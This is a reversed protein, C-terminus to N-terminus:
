RKEREQQHSDIIAQAREMRERFVKDSVLGTHLGFTVIHRKGDHNLQKEWIMPLDGSPGARLIEIEGFRWIRYSIDEETLQELEVDYPVEKEAPCVLTHAPFYDRRVILRLLSKEGSQPLANWFATDQMCQFLHLGLLQVNAHCSNTLAEARQQSDRALGGFILVGIASIILLAAFAYLYRQRLSRSDVGLIPTM